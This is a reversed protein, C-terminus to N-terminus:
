KKRKNKQKAHWFAYELAERMKKKDDEDLNYIEGDFMVESQELFKLLDKPKKPELPAIPSPVDTEALIYDTSVNFYKAMKKLTAQSPQKKNSEYYAITSQSLNLTIGLEQQSLNVEERLEKLRDGFTSM